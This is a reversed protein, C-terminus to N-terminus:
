RPILYAAGIIILISVGLIVWAELGPLGFHYFAIGIIVLWFPPFCIAVVILAIIVTLM